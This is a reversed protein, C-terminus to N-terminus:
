AMEFDAKGVSCDPCIWDQPVDAWRTGAPLGHDPLGAEEDYVFGCLLCVWTRYPPLTDGTTTMKTDNM